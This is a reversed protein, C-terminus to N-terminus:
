VGPFEGEFLPQLGVSSPPEGARQRDILDICAALVRTADYGLRRIRMPTKTRIPHNCHCIVELDDPILVRAEALGGLAEVEFNDDTIILGDPREPQGPHMLLRMVPRISEPVAITASHLWHPRVELGHARMANAVREEPSSHLRVVAIKRRGLAVMEKLARHLFASPDLRVTSYGDYPDHDRVVARPINPFELIPTGKLADPPTAFILGALRRSKLDQVVRHFDDVDAHGDLGYFRSIRRTSDQTLQESAVELATYFRSFHFKKDERTPFLLGYECLHPPNESVFTGRSGQAVVFGETRLRDLAQQITAGSVQFRRELDLRTPLRAGRPVRGSIIEERLKVLIEDRKVPSRAM